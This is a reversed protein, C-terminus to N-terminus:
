ECCDEEDTTDNCHMKGDCRFRGNYCTGNDCSLYGAPCLATSNNAPCEEEDDGDACDRVGDCVRPAGVCSGGRCQLAGSQCEDCEAEDEAAACDVEGDCRFIDRICADTCNFFGKPCVLADGGCMLEDAADSCDAWGDCLWQKSICKGSSCRYWGLPCTYCNSEDEGGACDNVDDCEWYIPICYGDSCPFGGCTSDMRTDSVELCTKLKQRTMPLYQTDLANERPSMSLAESDFIKKKYTTTYTDTSGLYNGYYGQTNGWSSMGYGTTSGLSYKSHGETSRGSGSSMAYGETSRGSGSSMAYGETSRGSGSSMAYGETSRGSGSSMANGETRGGSGSSMANGETRGGSGSSMAYGETSGPSNESHGEISRESSMTFGQTSGVSNESYGQSSVDYGETSGQSNESHGETSGGPSVTYAQTSGGTGTDGARKHRSNSQKKFMNFLKKKTTFKRSDCKPEIYQDELEVFARWWKHEELYESHPMSNLSCLTVAPFHVVTDEEVRQDIKKPYQSYDYAVVCIQEVAWVTFTLCVTLWVFRRCLGSKRFSPLRGHQIKPPRQTVYVQISVKPLIEVCFYFEICVRYIRRVGHMSTSEFFSSAIRNVSPEEEDESDDIPKQKKNM